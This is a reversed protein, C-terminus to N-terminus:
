GMGITTRAKDVRSKAEERMRATEANKKRYFAIVGGARARLWNLAQSAADVDDDHAGNPFVTLEAIVDEVWPAISPDPLYVNGAEFLPSVARLRSEKGGEPNIPLIGPIEARLMQIVAPGNAKDEILIAQADPHQARKGKVAAMTAPMDLRAHTRDLLYFEGGKMGWVHGAVFDSKSTDKFTCDWSQIKTDFKSPLETYFKIWQRKIIAGEPPAPRQQYQGAWRYSGVDRKISECVEMPFRSPWLPEGAKREVIRGSIPFEWREDEEAIMPLRIVTWEGPAAKALLHGTLDDEHLRQMVIIFVGSIQDSLRTRLTGDFFDNASERHADSDADDASVLDDCIVDHAGRGTATGGPSTISMKGGATNEFETKRNQDPTFSVKGPWHSQFWDSEAIRRREVNHNTSLDASYSAALFRQHPALSWCWTPYFVSVLRTKMTQPPVNVMLRRIRRQRCLVLHECIYDLHWNWQLPTGPELIPWAGRSFTALDATLGQALLREEDAREKAELTELYLAKEEGSLLALESDSLLPVLANMSM